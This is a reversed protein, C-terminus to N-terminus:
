AAAALALDQMTGMSRVTFTKDIRRVLGKLVAGPGVESAGDVGAAVVAKVSDTWRVPATMQDILLERLRDPNSEAAASANTVVPVSPASFATEKLHDALERAAPEMLQSHFAGSVPLNVVRKAGARQAADGVRAVADVEGSIVIQGPANFNAAVVIGEDAACLAVIDDDDMGLIASMAGPNQTGAKEMLEGRLRVLRLAVTFDLVGTAVLASYEGLSHGAAIAPAVGAQGLLRACIVSHLFVAPQTVSTKSLEEMPGEFCVSSLSFGLTDDAEEFMSKALADADFLDKGMGIAQSAQGPFLFAENSNM